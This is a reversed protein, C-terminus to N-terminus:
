TKRMARVLARMTPRSSSVTVMWVLVALGAARPGGFEAAFLEHAAEELMHQRAAEVLHTVETQPMGHLAVVGRPHPLHQLELHRGLKLRCLVGDVRRKYRSVCFRHWRNLRHDTRVTM